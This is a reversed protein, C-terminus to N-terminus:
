KAELVAVARNAQIMDKVSVAANPGGNNRAIRTAEAITADYSGLLTKQNAVLAVPDAYGLAVSTDLASFSQEAATVPQSEPIGANLASVATAVGNKRVFVRPQTAKRAPARGLAKRVAGDIIADYRTAAGTPKSAARGGKYVYEMAM